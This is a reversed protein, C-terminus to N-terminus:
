TKRRRRRRQVEAFDDMTLSLALGREGLEELAECYFEAWTLHHRLDGVRKELWARREPDELEARLADSAEEPHLYANVWKRHAERAKLLGRVVRERRTLQSLKITHKTTGDPQPETKTEAGRFLGGLARLADDYKM